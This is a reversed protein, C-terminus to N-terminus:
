EPNRPLKYGQDELMALSAGNDPHQDLWTRVRVREEGHGLALLSLVRIEQPHDTKQIADRLIDM